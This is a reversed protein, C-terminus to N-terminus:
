KISSLRLQFKKRYIFSGITLLLMTAIGVGTSVGTIATLTLGLLTSISLALLLFGFM